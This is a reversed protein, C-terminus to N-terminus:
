LGGQREVHVAGRATLLFTSRTTRLRPSLLTAWLGSVQSCGISPDLSMAVAASGGNAMVSGLTCANSTALTSGCLSTAILVQLLVTQRLPLTCPSTSAPQCPRTGVPVRLPGSTTGTHATAPMCWPQGHWRRSCVSVRVSNQQRNCTYFKSTMMLSPCPAPLPLCSAAVPSRCRQQMRVCCSPLAHLSGSHEVDSLAKTETMVVGHLIYLRM